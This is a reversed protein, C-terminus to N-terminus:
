KILIMKRSQVQGDVNLRYFYTGSAATGGWRVTYNGAPMPQQILTEVVQGQVNYITLEVPKQGM